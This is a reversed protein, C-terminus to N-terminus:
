AGRRLRLRQTRAGPVREIVGRAELDLKVWEQYWAINGDFRGRLEDEVACALDRLSLEPEDHLRRMIAREIADYKEKPISVGRKGEPHQLQVREEPM